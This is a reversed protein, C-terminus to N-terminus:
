KEIEEYKGNEYYIEGLNNELFTEFNDEFRNEIKIRLDEGTGRLGYIYYWGELDFALTHDSHLKYLTYFMIAKSTNYGKWHNINKYDIREDILKLIIDIESTGFKKIYNDLAKVTIDFNNQLLELIYEIAEEAYETFDPQQEPVQNEYREQARKFSM